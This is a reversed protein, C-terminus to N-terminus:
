WLLIRSAVFSIELPMVPKEAVFKFGRTHLARINEMPVRIFVTTLLIPYLYFAISWQFQHSDFDKNHLKL